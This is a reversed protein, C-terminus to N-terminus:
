GPHSIEPFPPLTAATLADQLFPWHDFFLKGPARANIEPEQSSLTLTEFRELRPGCDPFRARYADLLGDMDQPDRPPGGDLYLQLSLIRSYLYFLRYANHGHGVDPGLTRVSLSFEAAAQRALLRLRSSGPARLRAADLNWSLRYYKSWLPRRSHRMVWARDRPLGTGLGFALFPSDLFPSHMLGRLIPYTLPWGPAAFANDSCHWHDMQGALNQFSNESPTSGIIVFWRFLSDMFFGCDGPLEPALLADLRMKWLKPDPDTFEGLERWSSALPSADDPAESKLFTEACLKDLFSMTSFLLALADQRSLNEPRAIAAASARPLDNELASLQRSRPPIHFPDGAAARGHRFVDAACKTIKFGFDPVRPRGAGSFYAQALSLYSFLAEQLCFLAAADKARPEATPLIAARNQGAAPKWGSIESARTGGHRAYARLESPTAMQLEGLVPFIKKFIRYITWVTKVLEPESTKGDLNLVALLDIDSIGPSWDDGSLGRRLYLDAKRGTAAGLTADLIRPIIRYISRYIQSLVPRNRTRIVFSRAANLMRRKTITM